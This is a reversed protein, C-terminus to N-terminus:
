VPDAQHVATHSAPLTFYFRAGQGPQSEVGVRGGLKEVIQYVISLGLGHGARRLSSLQSFPVFLHRTAEPPLGPGNDCAWFRVFGDPQVDAGLEIRPPRGGYKLANTLYNAWVEEVWPAHGLAAPWADPLILDAGYEGIMEGLRDHVSAVITAMDLTQRPVELRRVQSLLLLEDIIDSMRFATSQIRQLLNGAKDRPLDPMSTVVESATVIASLPTKLDHAVTHAYADLEENRRQLIAAHERLDAESQRLAENRAALTAADRRLQEESLKLSRLLIAYPKVLGTEVVAKYLFYSAALRLLHGVVNTEGYLSVYSTFTLESAVTLLLFIALFRWVEPEFSQRRLYLLITAGLFISAIVYESIKKFPTLGYGPVYAVPFLHWEFVAVLLMSTVVAFIAMQLRASLRRGLFFPAILLSLCELYRAAIWLQTALNGTTDSFVGIGKYALAHVLDLLAVFLFAVGVFILYNNDLYARTNWAIIFIAADVIITILEIVTHFLLFDNRAIFLFAALLLALTLVFGGARIYERRDTM